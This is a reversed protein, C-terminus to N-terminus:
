ATSTIKSVVWGASVAGATVPTVGPAPDVPFGTDTAGVADNECATVGFVTDNM